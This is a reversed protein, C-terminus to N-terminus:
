PLKNEVTIKSLFPTEEIQRHIRMEGIGNLETGEFFTTIM